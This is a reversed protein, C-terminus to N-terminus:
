PRRFTESQVVEHLLTRFGFDKAAVRSVIAEVAARDSFGLGRGLGYTLLKEALGRAIQEREELLMKKYERIDGFKRGDALAGTPDV